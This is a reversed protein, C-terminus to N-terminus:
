CRRGELPTCYICCSESSYHSLSTLFSPTPTINVLKLWQREVFLGFFLPIKASVSANWCYILWKHHVGLRGVSFECTRIYVYASLLHKLMHFYIWIYIYIYVCLHASNKCLSESVFVYVCNCLCGQKASFVCLILALPCAGPHLSQPEIGM